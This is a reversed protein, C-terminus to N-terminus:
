EGDEKYRGIKTRTGHKTHGWWDPLLHIFRDAEGWLEWRQHRKSYYEIYWTRQKKETKGLFGVIVGLLFFLFFFAALTFNM